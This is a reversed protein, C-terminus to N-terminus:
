GDRNAARPFWATHVECRGRKFDIEEEQTAREGLCLYRRNGGGVRAQSVGPAFCSFILFWARFLLRRM